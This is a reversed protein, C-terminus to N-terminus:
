GRCRRLLCTRGDSRRTQSCMNRSEAYALARLRPGARLQAGGASRVPRPRPDRWRDDAAAAGPPADRAGEPLAAGHRVLACRGQRRAPGRVPQRLAVARDLGSAGPVAAGADRDGGADDRHLPWASPAPQATGGGPRAGFPGRLVMAGAHIGRLARRDRHGSPALRARGAGGPGGAVTGTGATRRVLPWHDLLALAGM